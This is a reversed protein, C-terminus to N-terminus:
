KKVLARGRAFAELNMPLFKPKKKGLKERIIKMASDLSVMGSAEVLTGLIVINAVKDSGLETAISNAPVPLVRIDTRPKEYNVLDSNYILLGGPKVASEFKTLSPQNMVVVVDGSTVMPSGVPEDSVVCSCNATGGRMEPGYSPIWTVNRGDEIGSFAVLQGLMMVGQGGFGAALLEKYFGAM